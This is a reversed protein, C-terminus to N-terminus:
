PKELQPSPISAIAGVLEDELAWWHEGRQPLFTEENLWQDKKWLYMGALTIGGEEDRFAILATTAEPLNVPETHPHWKCLAEPRASALAAAWARRAVERCGGDIPGWWEEFTM